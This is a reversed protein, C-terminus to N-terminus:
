FNSLGKKFRLFMERMSAWIITLPKDTAINPNSKNNQTNLTYKLQAAWIGIVISMIVVVSIILVSRRKVLPANQLKELREFFTM